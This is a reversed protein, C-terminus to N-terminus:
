EKKILICAYCKILDVQQEYRTAKISVNNTNLITQLSKLIPTKLKQFIIKECVINVDLNVTIFGLKQMQMLAFNIVKVSALNKSKATPFYTGLDELSLAGLIASAIAHLIVDGDSVAVIRYNLVFTINALKQSYTPCFVLTHQDVGFGIRYSM